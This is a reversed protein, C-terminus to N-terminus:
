EETAVPEELSEEQPEESEDMPEEAVTEVPAAKRKADFKGKKRYGLILGIVVYCVAGVIALGVIALPILIALGPIGVHDVPKVVPTTTEAPAETTMETPQTVPATTEVPETKLRSCILCKFTQQGDAIGQDFWHHANEGMLEGCSCLYWHQTDNSLFNGVAKHIHRGAPELVFGCTLCVQDETENAEPGPVHPAPEQALGCINCQQYHSTKDTFWTDGFDHETERTAGCTNCEEDCDFDYSHGKAEIYDDYTYGCDACLFEMEGREECSAPAYGIVTFNHDLTDTEETKTTQCATCTYLKEGATSCTAEKTVKGSDWTHDTKAVTDTKTAGCSSCTYTKVGETGCTAPTTIKGDDYSHDTKAIAETKTAGCIGCTYTKVGEKGCTAPTTIKGDDYSHSVERDAGCKDCSEDCDNAYSHDCAMSLTVSDSVPFGDTNFTATVAYSGSPADDKVTLEFVSIVGSVPASENFAFTTSMSSAYFGNVFAGAVKSEGSTLTFVSSDFSLKCAGGGCNDVEAYVTITISDGPSITTKNTEVWADVSSAAMAPIATLAVVLVLCLALFLRKKM